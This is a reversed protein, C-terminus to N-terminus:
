KLEGHRKKKILPSLKGLAWRTTEKNFIASALIYFVMGIIVFLALSIFSSTFNILDLWRLMVIPITMIFTSYAAGKLSHFYNIWTLNLVRLLKGITIWHFIIGNLLVAYAVGKIGWWSGILVMIIFSLLSFMNIRFEIDPRGIGKLISGVITGLSSLVGAFMLIQLVPVVELWKAGYLFEIFEPAVIALGICLPFTIFSIKKLLNIYITGVKKLDNQHRAVEPFAVNAISQSFYFRVITSWQFAITYLGLSSSGLLKGILLYDVNNRAFNVIRTGLVNLSFPFIDKILGFDAKGMVERLGILAVLMISQIAPRFLMSFGVALMPFKLLALLIAVFATCIEATIDIFSIKKFKKNRMLIGRQTIGLSGIFIGLCSYYLLPEIEPQEYFQSIFPALLLLVVILFVSLIINLIFTTTVVKKSIVKVQVLYSSLGAEQIVYIFGVVVLAMGVLGFIEPTLLRALMVSTSLGIVRVGISGTLAWLTNRFFNM